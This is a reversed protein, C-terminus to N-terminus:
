TEVFGGASLKIKERKVALGRADVIELELPLGTTNTLWNAPKVIMGIHFTDGPRYIGRDSFLYASLQDDTVANRIGGVDFRSVDLGREARNLPIFSLDSGKRVLVMLPARERTLGSIKAFRTHGSKDTVQSFLTLGNKGVIDVM